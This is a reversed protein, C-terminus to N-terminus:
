AMVVWKRATILIENTLYKLNSFIAHNEGIVSGYSKM